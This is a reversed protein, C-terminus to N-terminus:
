RVVRWNLTAAGPTISGATNNCVKFNVNGSTPYKIITLMGNASPSYGTTSTPDASFDAIIDDTTAIGSGSVTVASACAGSSIPSTALTATGSAITVTCTSCSIAGTAAIGIPSTGSLGATGVNGIPTQGYLVGGLAVTNLVFNALMQGGSTNMHSTNTWLNLLSTTSYPGALAVTDMFGWGNTVAAARQAAAYQAMTYTGTAGIDPPPVLLINALPVFTHIESVLTAYGGTQTAPVVNGALENVGLQIVVLAPNLAQM